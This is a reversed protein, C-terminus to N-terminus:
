KMGSPCYLEAIMRITDEASQSHRYNEMSRREYAIVDNLAKWGEPLRGQIPNFESSFFLATVCLARIENGAERVDEILAQATESIIAGQADEDMAYFEVYDTEAIATGALGAIFMVSAAATRIRMPCM